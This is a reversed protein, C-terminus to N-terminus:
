VPGDFHTCRLTLRWACPREYNHGQVAVGAGSKSEAWLAAQKQGVQLHVADRIDHKYAKPACRRRISLYLRSLLLCVLAPDRLADSFFIM